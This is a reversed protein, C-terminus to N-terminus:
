TISLLSPFVRHSQGTTDFLFIKTKFVCLAILQKVRVFINKLFFFIDCVKSSVNEDSIYSSSTMDSKLLSIMQFRRLLPVLPASTGSSVVRNEVEYKGKDWLHLLLLVSDLLHSLSGRQVALELLLCLATHQDNVPVEGCIRGSNM